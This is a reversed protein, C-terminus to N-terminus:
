YRMEKKSYNQSFPPNSIVRDFRLLEGDHVHQPSTLVDGSQIDAKKVGHLILNM